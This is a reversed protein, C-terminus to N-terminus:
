KDYGRNKLVEALLIEQQHITLELAEKNTFGANSYSDFMLKAMEAMAGFGEILGRLAEENNM